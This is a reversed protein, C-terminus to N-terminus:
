KMRAIKQLFLAQRESMLELYLLLCSKCKNILTVILVDATKDYRIYTLSLRGTRMM